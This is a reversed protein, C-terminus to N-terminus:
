PRAISAAAGSEGAVIGAPAPSGYVTMVSTPTPATKPLGAVAKEVLGSLFPVVAPAMAELLKRAEDLGRQKALEVMREMAMKKLREGETSSIHGDAAIEQVLPRATAEIDAVVIEALYALQALGAASRTASTKSKLWLGLQGLAWVLGSAVLTALPPVVYQVFVALLQSRM